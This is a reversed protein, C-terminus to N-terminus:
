IVVKIVEVVVMVVMVVMVVVVVQVLVVRVKVVVVREEVELNAMEEVVEVSGKWVVEELLVEVMMEKVMAGRDKVLVM